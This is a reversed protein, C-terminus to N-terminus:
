RLWRPRARRRQCRPRGTVHGVGRESLHVHSSPVSWLRVPEVHRGLAVVSVVTGTAYRTGHRYSVAGIHPGPSRLCPHHRFRSEAVMMWSWRSVRAQAAASCRASIIGLISGVQWGRRHDTGAVGGPKPLASSGSGVQFSWVTVGLRGNGGGEPKTIWRQRGHGPGRNPAGCRTRRVSAGAGHHGRVQRAVVVRSGQGRRAGQGM